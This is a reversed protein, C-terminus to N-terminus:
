SVFKLKGMTKQADALPIGMRTFVRRQEPTMGDEAPAGSNEAGGGTSELFFGKDRGGFRVGAERAARGFVMDVVNRIYDPNGRIPKGDGGVIPSNNLTKLIEPELKAWAEGYGKSSYEQKVDALALRAETEMQRFVIPGLRQAFATAEDDMVSVTEPTEVRPEPRRTNAEIADLRADRAAQSEMFPKMAASVSEAILEAPTKEPPANPDAHLEPNPMTEEKKKFPNWDAM